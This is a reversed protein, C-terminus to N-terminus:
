GGRGSSRLAAGRAFTLFDIVRPDGCARSRTSVLNVGAKIKQDVKSVQHRELLVELEDLRDINVFDLAQLFQQTKEPRLNM